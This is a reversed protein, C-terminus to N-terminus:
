DVGKKKKNKESKLRWIILNQKLEKNNRKKILEKKNGCHGLIRIRKEQENKIIRKCKECNISVFPCGENNFKIM